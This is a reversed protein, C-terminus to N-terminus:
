PACYSNTLAAAWILAEFSRDVGRDYGDDQPKNTRSPSDAPNSPSPVRAIWSVVSLAVEQGVYTHLMEQLAGVNSFGKILSDSVGDNDVYHVLLTLDESAVLMHRVVIIPFLEAEAIVQSKDGAGKWYEVLAKPIVLHFWWTGPKGVEHVVAGCTVHDHDIGECACDSFAITYRAPFTLPVKRPPATNICACIKECSADMGATM